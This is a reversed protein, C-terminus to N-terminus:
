QAVEHTLLEGTFEQSDILVNFIVGISYDIENICFKFLVSELPKAHFSHVYRCANWIEVTPQFRFEAYMEFNFRSRLTGTTFEISMIGFERVYVGRSHLIRREPSPCARPKSISHLEQLM